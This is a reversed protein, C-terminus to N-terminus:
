GGYADRLIEEASRGAEGLARAREVTLGQGHGAGVGRFWWAQEEPLHGLADPCSPLKFANRFTECSVVEEGSAYLLHLFVGGDKRRERRIDLVQAEGLRGALEPVSLRREWREEGGAAFPLWNLSRRGALKDLLTLLRPDTAVEHRTPQDVSTGLFVMCHTTDCLASTEAHRQGGHSGNWVIAARMADRASGKLYQAEATLVADAYTEADTELVLPGGPTREHLVGSVRRESRSGRATSVIRFEGCLSFREENHSLAPCEERAEWSARPTLSLLRVRVVAFRPPHTQRWRELLPMAQRLLAAGALGRQRFIALFVPHEAPWALM